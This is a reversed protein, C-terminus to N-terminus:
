ELFAKPPESVKLTNDECCHCRPGLEVGYKECVAHVYHVIELLENDSPPLLYDLPTSPIPKFLSLIPSVGIKCVAEIGALLSAKPELGVIFITRVNGTAGWIDVATKLSTLYTDIPISGKGPMYKYAFTRDFVEINFTVETIGAGKLELMIQKDVIPLSMLNIPFGNKQHLYRAIRCVTEYDDCLPNSGGGILYHNINTCHDYANIADTIHEFSLARDDRGIDCFRCGVGMTKYNCGLRHYIRLRDNGLYTFDSFYLTRDSTKRESIPDSGRVQIESIMNLGYFLCLKNDVPRIIFPSLESLNAKYPVSVYYKNGVTLDIAEFEEYNIGGDNNLIQLAINDITIGHSLLMIKLKLIDNRYPWEILSEEICLNPHLILNYDHSIACINKTFVLKYLYTGSELTDQWSLDDDILNVGDFTSAQLYLHRLLDRRNESYIVKYYSYHIDYDVTYSPCSNYFADLHFRQMSYNKNIANLANNILFTSSQFRPNIESFYVNDSTTIYDIGCIGLYGSKRLREGIIESYRLVKEKIKEPLHRYAIFDAGTYEFNFSQSNLKILQVSAPFLLIKEAYIILHINVSINNKIYPTLSYISDTDIESFVTDKSQESLLWTESGGCSYEGQLVYPKKQTIINKELIRRGYCVENPLVPVENGLWERCKFKSDWLDLKQSDIYGVLRSTVSESFHIADMPYYLVFHANPYEKIIKEATLNVFEFWKDIDGNYDFRTKCYKDLAYNGNRNTGFITVSGMFLTSTNEIESEQIGIWFLQKDM